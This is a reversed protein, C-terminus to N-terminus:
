EAKVRKMKYIMNDLAFVAIDEDILDFDMGIDADGSICAMSLQLIEGGKFGLEKAQRVPETLGGQFLYEPPVKAIEYHAKDCNLFGPGQVSDAMFTIRGRAIEENLMPQNDSTQTVWPAPQVDVVDWSGAFAEQASAPGAKLILGVGAAVVAMGLVAMVIQIRTM